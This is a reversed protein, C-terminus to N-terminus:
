THSLYWGKSLIQLFTEKEKKNQRKYYYDFLFVLQFNMIKLWSLLRERSALPEKCPLTIFIALM